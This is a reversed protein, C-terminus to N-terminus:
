SGTGWAALVVDEWISLLIKKAEFVCPFGMESMYYGKSVSVFDEIPMSFDLPDQFLLRIVM